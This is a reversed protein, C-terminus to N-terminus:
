AQGILVHPFSEYESSADDWLISWRNPRHSECKLGIDPRSHTGIRMVPSTIQPLHEGNANLILQESGVPCPNLMNHQRFRILFIQYLYRVFDSLSHGKM